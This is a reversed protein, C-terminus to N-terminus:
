REAAPAPSAQKTARNPKDSAPLKAEIQELWEALHELVATNYEEANRIPHMNVPSKLTVGFRRELKGVTTKMREAAIHRKKQLIGRAAM